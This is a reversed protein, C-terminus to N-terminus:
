RMLTLQAGPRGTRAQPQLRAWSWWYPPLQEEYVTGITDGFHAHGLADSGGLFIAFAPAPKGGPVTKVTGQFGIAAAQHGCSSTCGSICVKPLAGDPINAERM